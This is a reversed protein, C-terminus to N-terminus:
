AVLLHGEICLGAHWRFRIKMLSPFPGHLGAVMNIVNQYAM